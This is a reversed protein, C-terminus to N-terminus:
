QVVFKSFYVAEVGGSGAEEKLIRNITDLTDKQLTQRGIADHAQESTVASYLMTLEGKIRPQYKDFRTIAAQDRSMVDVQIQLYRYRNGDLINVVFAPEITEYIPDKVVPRAPEAAVTAAPAAPTKFLFFKAFFLTGVMTGALVLVALVSLLISKKSM